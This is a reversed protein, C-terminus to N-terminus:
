IGVHFNGKNIGQEIYSGLLKISIIRTKATGGNYDSFAGANNLRRIAYATNGVASTKSAEETSPDIYSLTVSNATTPRVTLGYQTNAKLLYPSSFAFSSSTSNSAVGLWTADVTITRAAVPTGLPDEYLILEYDASNAGSANVSAGVAYFTGPCNILNGYEDATGTGSNFAVSSVGAGTFAGGFIWAITGDDFKIYANPLTGTLRAYVGTTNDTVTPFVPSTGFIYSGSTAVVVSDSAGRATMKFVIAVLDGNTITKTGTTMVSTQTANTTVGGGGGTFSAKVDFAGDGQAPNTATSVDMLGVEFTSSGSSFTVAGSRWVIAGGGAASITKSGSLPNELIVHGVFCCTEGAANLTSSTGSAVSMLINPFSAYQGTILQQSM